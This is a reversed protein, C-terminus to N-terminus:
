NSIVRWHQKKENKKWVPAKRNIKVAHRSAPKLETDRPRAADMPPALLSWESDIAAETKTMNTKMKAVVTKWPIRDRLPSDESTLGQRNQTKPEQVSTAAFCKHAHLLSTTQEEM